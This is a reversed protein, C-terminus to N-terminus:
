YSGGETNTFECYNDRQYGTLDTDNIEEMNFPCSDNCNIKLPGTQFARCEVCDRLERCPGLTNPWIECYDGRFLGMENDACICNECECNGNGSCIEGDYPSLCEEVDTPCGCDEGTWGPYCTCKGCNCEGHNSCLNGNDDM